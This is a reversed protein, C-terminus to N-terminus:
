NHLRKRSRKKEWLLISEITVSGRRGVRRLKGDELWRHITRAKVGFYLAAEPNSLISYTDPSKVKAIVAARQTMNLPEGLEQKSNLHEQTSSNAGGEQQYAHEHEKAEIELRRRWRDELRQMDLQLGRLVANRVVIPLNTATAFRSFQDAIAGARARLCPLIAKVLVARLFAQSKQRGQIQWVDCYIDYVKRAWEDTAEQKMKLVLSPIAMSNLNNRNEFGIHREKTEIQSNMEEALDTMKLGVLSHDVDEWRFVPM